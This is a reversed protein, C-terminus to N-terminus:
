SGRRERWEQHKRASDSLQSLLMFRDVDSTEAARM